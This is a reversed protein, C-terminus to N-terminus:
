FDMSFIEDLIKLFDRISFRKINSSQFDRLHSVTVINVIAIAVGDFYFFVNKANRPM